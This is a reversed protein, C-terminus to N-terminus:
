LFFCDKCKQSCLTMKQGLLTLKSECEQRFRTVACDTAFAKTNEDIWKLTCLKRRSVLANYFSQLSDVHQVFNSHTRKQVETTCCTILADSAVDAPLLAVGADPHVGLFKSISHITTKDCKSEAAALCQEASPEHIPVNDDFCFLHDEESIETSTSTHGHKLVNQFCDELTQIRLHVFQGDVVYLKANTAFLRTPSGKLTTGQLQVCDFVGRRERYGFVVSVCVCLCWWRGREVCMCVCACTCVWVRTRILVRVRM